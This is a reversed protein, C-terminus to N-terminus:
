FKRASLSLGYQIWSAGQCAGCASVLSYVVTNCECPDSEGGDPGRYSKGQPVPAIAFGTPTYPGM